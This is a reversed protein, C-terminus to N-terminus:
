YNNPSHRGEVLNADNKKRSRRRRQEDAKCTKCVRHGRNTLRTNEPTFEHGHKCHIKDKNDVHGLYESSNRKRAFSEARHCERCRRGGGSRPLTNEPTFEHGYKCHTKAAQHHTGNRVRDLLNEGRTGYVLNGLTNNDPNDDLHRVEFGDPCPGVFAEMVLKHVRYSKGGDGRCLAVHRHRRDMGPKLYKGTRLSHIRGQDSVEYLDEWGVVPRWEEPTADM